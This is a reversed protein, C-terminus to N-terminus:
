RRSGSQCCCDPQPVLPVLQWEHHLLNCRLLRNLLPEGAGTVLKVVETAQITGVVGAVAGLIGPLPAAPEHPPAVPFVCRYCACGPRWSLVEGTWGSASGHVFPKGAAVCADSVLQKTAFNDACEVVVGYGAILEAINEATVRVPHPVFTLDHNQRRLRGAAIDAKAQDIEEETFLIQRPLNALEVRDSDVLELTSIGMAALYLAVPSGLGGCGIILVKAKLMSWQGADGLERVMTQRRYQERQWESLM